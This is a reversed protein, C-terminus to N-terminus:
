KPGDGKAMWPPLDVPCHHATPHVGPGTRPRLAGAARAIWYAFLYDAGTYIVEPHVPGGPKWVHFHRVNNKWHWSEEHRMDIPAAARRKFQRVLTRPYEADPMRHLTTRIEDVLDRRNPHGGLLFCACIGANWWGVTAARLKKMGEKAPEHYKPNRGTALCVLALTVMNVDSNNVLRQIWTLQHPLASDWGKKDYHAVLEQLPMNQPALDAAGVVAAFGIAAWAGFKMLPMHPVTARLEGYKTKRGHRDRMWMKTNHLEWAIRDLNWAAERVLDPQDACFKGIMVWGMVVGALQDRSVDIRAHWNRGVPSPEVPGEFVHPLSHDQMPVGVNRALRGLTGTVESLNRLGRALARVQALADPDKTVWWRCAQCAAYCGTWIAADSLHLTDHSLRAADAGRGHRYTLVGEPSIHWWMQVQLKMAKAYLAADTMGPRPRLPRRPGPGPDRAFAPPSLLGVLLLASVYRM